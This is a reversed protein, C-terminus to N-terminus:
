RCVLRCDRAVDILVRDGLDDCGACWALGADALWDGLWGRLHASAGAANVPPLNLTMLRDRYDVSAAVRSDIGDDIMLWGTRGGTWYAWIPEDIAEGVLDALEELAQALRIQTMHGGRSM